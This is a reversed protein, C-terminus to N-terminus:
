KCYKELIIELISCISLLSCASETLQCIVWTDLKNFKLFLACQFTYIMKM